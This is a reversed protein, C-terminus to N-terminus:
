HFQHSLDTGLFVAGEPGNKLDIFMEMGKMVVEKLRDPGKVPLPFESTMLKRYLAWKPADPVIEGNKWSDKRDKPEM